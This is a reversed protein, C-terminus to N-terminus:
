RLEPRMLVLARKNGFFIKKRVTCNSQLYNNVNYDNMMMKGDHIMGSAYTILKSIKRLVDNLGTQNQKCSEKFDRWNTALWTLRTLIAIKPSNSV